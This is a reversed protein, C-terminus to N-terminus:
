SYYLEIARSSFIKSNGELSKSLAAISEESPLYPYLGGDPNLESGKSFRLGKNIFQDLLILVYGHHSPIENVDRIIRSNFVPLGLADSLSFKKGAFYRKTYYDTYIDSEYPIHAAIFDFGNLEVSNFSVREESPSQSHIIGTSSCSFLLFLLLVIPLVVRKTAFKTRYGLIIYIGWSMVCVMFPSLLLIFRDFQFVTMTQWLAHLPSPAYLPITILAFLALVPAYKPKQRWLIYGIAIIAFFLFILMDVNNIMFDLPSYALTDEKIMPTDILDTNIRSRIIYEHFAFAAYQSYSLFLTTILIIFKSSVIKNSGVFLECVLFLFLLSLIQITSVHHVLLIYLSILIALLGFCLTNKSSNKRTNRKFLLYLLIIFGVYAATRTVFYTGSFVITSSISYILCGLLSIQINDTMEMFIFFIFIVLIVYTPCSILFLTSKIDMALLHSSLAVWIHYLPYFSYNGYDPPIVHGSFYTITSTFLHPIIDTHGFYYPLKLTANYIHCCMGLMIEVLVISPKPDRTLIQFFLTLYLAVICVRFYLSGTTLLLCTIITLMFILAFLLVLTKQTFFVPLNPSIPETNTRYIHVLSVAAAIAPLALISGTIIFTPNDTIILFVLATVYTLIIGYPIILAVVRLAKESRVNHPDYQMIKKKFRNYREKIWVM